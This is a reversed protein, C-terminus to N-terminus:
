GIMKEQEEVDRSHWYRNRFEGWVQNGFDNFKTKRQKNIQRVFLDFMPRDDRELELILESIRVLVEKPMREGNPIQWLRIVAPIVLTYIAKFFQEKGIGEAQLDKFDPERSIYFLGVFSGWWFQRRVRWDEQPCGEEYVRENLRAFTKDWELFFATQGNKESLVESPCVAAIAGIISSVVSVAEFPSQLQAAEEIYSFLKPYLEKPNEGALVAIVTTEINTPIRKLDFRTEGILLDAMKRSKM